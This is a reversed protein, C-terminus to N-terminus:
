KFSMKIPAATLVELRDLMSLWSPYAGTRKALKESVAQHITIQTKGNIDAFSVTVTTEAPWEPDMGVSAPEVPDGEENVSSLTYVIREPESIELFFAKCWCDHTGPTSICHLISGGERVDASIIRLTCGKPAYWQMLHDPDTWANFVLERPANLLRTILVEGEVVTNNRKQM